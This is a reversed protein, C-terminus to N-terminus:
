CFGCVDLNSGDGEGDGVEKGSDVWGGGIWVKTEKFFCGM